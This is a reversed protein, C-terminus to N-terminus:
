HVVYRFSRKIDVLGPSWITRMMTRMTAENRFTRRVVVENQSKMLRSPRMGPDNTKKMDDLGETGNM